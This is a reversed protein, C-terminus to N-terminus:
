ERSYGERVDGSTWTRVIHINCIPINEQREGRTLLVREDRTGCSQKIKFYLYTIIIKFNKLTAKFSFLGVKQAVLIASLLKWM